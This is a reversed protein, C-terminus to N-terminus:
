AEPHLDAASGSLRACNMVNIRDLPSLTLWPDIM